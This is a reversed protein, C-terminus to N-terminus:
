YRHQNFQQAMQRANDYQSQSVQGSNMLYQIIQNPDNAVSMPVNFGRKQLFQMPNQRLTNAMNMIEMPNMM